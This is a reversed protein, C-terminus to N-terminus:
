AGSTIHVYADPCDEVLEGCECVDKEIVQKNKLRGPGVIFNHYDEKVNGEEDVLSITPAPSPIVIIVLILITSILMKLRLSAAM